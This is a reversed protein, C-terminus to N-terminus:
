RGDDGLIELVFDIPTAISYGSNLVTLGNYAASSSSPPANTTSTTTARWQSIFPVFEAVIGIVVFHREGLGEEDEELVPGGSNGPYVPCDLVLSRNQVNLGAIIGKRLLPRMLDFQPAPLLGISTPYGFVFVENSVLVDDFRRLAALSVGVIGAKSWGARAVGPLLSMVRAEGTEPVTAIRVAVVDRSPHVKIEGAAQLVKLNLV